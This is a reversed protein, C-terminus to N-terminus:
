RFRYQWGWTILSESYESFPENSSAERYTYDLFVSNNKDLRYFLGLRGLYLNDKQKYTVSTVTREDYVRRSYSAGVYSTLNKVLKCYLFLSPGWIKYDYYDLYRANSNNTYFSFGLRTALYPNLVWTLSYKAGLRRDLRSKDQYVGLLDQLAKRETYDKLGYYFELRHYIKKSFEKAIYLFGKHLLFDYDSHTYYLWNFDYGLGAELFSFKNALTLKLHNLLTSADTIKSYNKLDLDYDAQFLLTETLPKKFDLSYLLGQFTNNKRQSTLEVNSDYGFYLRIKQSIKAQTKKKLIEEEFRKIQLIKEEREESTQSFSYSFDFFNVILFFIIIKRM